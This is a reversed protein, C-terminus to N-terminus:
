LDSARKVNAHSYAFAIGVRECYRIASESGGFPNRKVGRVIGASELASLAENNCDNASCYSRPTVIERVEGNRYFVAITQRSYPNGNRDYHTRSAVFIAFPKRYTKM